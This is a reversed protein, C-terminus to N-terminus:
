RRHNRSSTIVHHPLVMSSSHWAPLIEPALGRGAPGSGSRCQVRPGGHPAAGMGERWLQLDAQVNFKLPAYTLIACACLGSTYEQLVLVTIRTRAVAAPSPSATRSSTEPPDPTSSG